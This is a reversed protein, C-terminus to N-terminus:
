TESMVKGVARIILNRMGGLTKVKFENTFM